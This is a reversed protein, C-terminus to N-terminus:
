TEKILGLKIMEKLHTKTESKCQEASVEYEERLKQCLEDLSLPKELYNWISSSVANLAFYKGKDIDMMVMEDQLKGSVTNNNRIYKIM